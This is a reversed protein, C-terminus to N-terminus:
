AKRLNVLKVGARHLQRFEGGQSLVELVPGIETVIAGCVVDVGFDFMVPSLPTTPGMVIVFSEPPCLELLPELTHNTMTMGTIAIVDASPLVQSASEAPLDGPGPHQELVLLEGVQPRLREVFPFRGVMVVRRNKGRQALLEEANQFTWDQPRHPLLANLAAMGIGAATPDSGLVLDALSRASGTGWYGAPQAAGQAGIQAGELTSALGCRLVGDVRAVVATWHLGVYGEQVEGELLSGLLRPLIKMPVIIVRNWDKDLPVISGCRVDQM